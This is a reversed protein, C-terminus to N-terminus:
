NFRKPNNNSLKNWGNTQKEKKMNWDEVHASRRGLVGVLGVGSHRGAQGHGHEGGAEGTHGAAVCVGGNGEPHHEGFIHRGQPSDHVHTGLAPAPDCTVLWVWNTCELTPLSILINKFHLFTASRGTKLSWHETTFDMVDM